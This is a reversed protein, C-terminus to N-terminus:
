TTNKTEYKQAMLKLWMAIQMENLVSFTFIYLLFRLKIKKIKPAQRAHPLEQALFLVQAVVTVGAM